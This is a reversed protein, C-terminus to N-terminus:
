SSSNIVIDPCRNRKHGPMRCLTCRQRPRQNASEGGDATEASVANNDEIGNQALLLGEADTLAGNHIFRKNKMARIKKIHGNEIRLQTIERKQLSLQHLVQEYGKTIQQIGGYILASPDTLQQQLLLNIASIQRKLDKTHKPTYPTYHGISDSGSSGPPTSTHLRITLKDLVHQPDFPILGAGSFSNSITSKIDFAKSRAKEYLSLFKIKNIHNVASAIQTQVLTGYAKKIVSFCDVDLSQLLHSLHPPM